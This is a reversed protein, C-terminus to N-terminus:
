GAPVEPGYVTMRDRGLAKAQYLARDACLELEQLSQAHDPYVALGGSLTVPPTLGALAGTRVEDLLHRLYTNATALDYGPLVVAFEDGGVRAVGADAPAAARLCDAVARLVDDGGSHGRQDNVDKFREVDLVLLALPTGQQVAEGFWQTSVREYCRRNHLGTLHDREALDLLQAQYDKQTVAAQQLSALMSNFAHGLRAFEDRGQLRIQTAVDGTLAVRQVGQSLVELKRLVLRDAAIMFSVGAVLGAIVMLGVVLVWTAVGRQFITRLEVTRLVLAPAGDIDSLLAYGAILDNSLTQAGVPQERHVLNGAALVDDPLDFADPHFGEVELLTRQGLEALQQWDLCRVWVLTGRVPGTRRSTVVPQASFLMVGDALRLVGSSSDETTRHIFLRSGPALYEELGPPLPAQVGKLFDYGREYIIRGELNVLVMANIRQNVYTSSIDLNERQYTANRSVMFDYTDDWGAWDRTARNLAEIDAQVAAQLRQANRQTQQLELSSFSGLVIMQVALSAIGIALVVLATTFM